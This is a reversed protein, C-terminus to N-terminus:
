WKGVGGLANRILLPSALLMHAGASHTTTIVLGPEAGERGPPTAGGGGAADPPQVHCYALGSWHHLKLATEICFMPEAQLQRAEHEVQSHLMREAVKVPVEEETWAFDQLWVQCWVGGAEVQM